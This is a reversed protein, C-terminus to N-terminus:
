KEVEYYWDSRSAYQQCIALDWAALTKPGIKGDPEVGVAEQLQELTPLPMTADWEQWAVPPNEAVPESLNWNLGIGLGLITGITLIFLTKIM